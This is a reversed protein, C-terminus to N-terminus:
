KSNNNNNNNNSNSNSSNNSEVVRNWDAPSEKQESLCIDPTFWRRNSQACM